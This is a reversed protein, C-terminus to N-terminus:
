ELCALACGGLLKEDRPFDCNAAPDFFASPIGEAQFTCEVPISGANFADSAETRDMLSRTSMFDSLLFFRKEFVLYSVVGKGSQGSFYWIHRYLLWFVKCTCTRDLAHVHLAANSSWMAESQFYAERAGFATFNRNKYAGAYLFVELKLHNQLWFAWNRGIYEM